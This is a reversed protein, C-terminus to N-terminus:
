KHLYYVRKNERDSVYFNEMDEADACLTLNQAPLDVIGKLIKGDISVQDLQGFSGSIMYLDNGLIVTGVPTYKNPLEAAEILEGEQTVKYIFNKGNGAGFGRDNSYLELMDAAYFEDQYLFVRGMVSEESEIIENDMILRIRNDDKYTSDTSVCIMGKSNVELSTYDSWGQKTTLEPLEIEREFKGDANLIQVRSNGADLVYIHESTVKVDMPQSFEGEGMGINGITGQYNLDRDYLRVTGAECDCIYVVGDFVDLGAPCEIGLQQSEYIEIDYLPETIFPIEGPEQELGSGAAMCTLSCFSGTLFVAGFIVCRMGTM